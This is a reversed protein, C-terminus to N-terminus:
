HPLIRRKMPCSFQRLDKNCFSKKPPLKKVPLYSSLVCCCGRNHSEEQCFFPCLREMSMGSSPCMVGSAVGAENPWEALSSIFRASNGIASTVSRTGSPSFVMRNWSRIKSSLFPWCTVRFSTMVAESSNPRGVAFSSSTMRPSMWSVRRALPKVLRVTGKLRESKM